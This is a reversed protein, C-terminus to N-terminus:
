QNFRAPARRQTAELAIEPDGLRPEGNGAEVRVRTFRPLESALLDVDDFGRDSGKGGFAPSYGTGVGGVGHKMRTGPGVVVCGQAHVMVLCEDRDLRQVELLRDVHRKAQWDDAGRGVM